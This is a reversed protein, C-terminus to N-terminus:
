KQRRIIKKSLYDDIYINGEYVYAVEPVWSEAVDGDPPRTIIDAIRIQTPAMKSACVVANKDGECGAHVIGRLIGMVVIDGVASLEAGPNVDGIVVLNGLSRVRQGSRITGFHLVSKDGISAAQMLLTNDEGEYEVVVGKPVIEMIAQELRIRDVSGFQCGSIVIRGTGSSFFGKVEGVRTVIEQTIRGFDSDQAAVIVRIGDKIGKLRVTEEHIM